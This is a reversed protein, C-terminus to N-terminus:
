HTQSETKETANTSLPGITVPVVTTVFSGTCSKEHHLSTDYIMDLESNLKVVVFAKMEYHNSVLATQIMKRRVLIRITIVTICM